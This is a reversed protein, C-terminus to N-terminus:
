LILGPVSLLHHNCHLRWWGVNGEGGRGEDFFDMREVEPSGAHTPLCDYPCCVRM